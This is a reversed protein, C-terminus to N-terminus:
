RLTFTDKVHMGGGGGIGTAAQERGVVVLSEERAMYEAFTRVVDHITCRFGTLSYEIIPEILNRKILEQYYESAIEEFGYQPSSNSSGDPPQIFGESIWMKTVVGHIINVGKPFLSCYLFCQKLQPSLDEYSLYIRNDLEPPLGTLSWAPKNLVSKWEHESPYETSLLGGIVKIALPLGDCNELIEMGITKLQDDIGTVQWYISKLSRM